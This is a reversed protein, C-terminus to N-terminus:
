ILPFNKQGFNIKVRIGKGSGVVPVVREGLTVVNSFAPGLDEGNKALIFQKPKQVGVV